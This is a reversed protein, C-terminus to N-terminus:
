GGVLAGAVDAVVWHGVVRGTAGGTWHGGGWRDLPGVQGTVGGGWRDLPGGGTWHGRGVQGTARGIWHGGVQGTAAVQQRGDGLHAVVQHSGVSGIAM